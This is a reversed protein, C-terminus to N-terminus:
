NYEQFFIVQLVAASTASQARFVEAGVPIKKKSRLTFTQGSPVEITTSDPLTLTFVQPTSSSRIYCQWTTADDLNNYVALASTNVVNVVQASVTRPATQALLCVGILFAITLRKM